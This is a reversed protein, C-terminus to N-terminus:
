KNFELKLKDTVLPDISDQPLKRLVNMCVDVSPQGFVEKYSNIISELVDKLEGKVVASKVDTSEFEIVGTAEARAKALQEGIILSQERIIAVIVENTNM